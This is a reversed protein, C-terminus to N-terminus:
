DCAPEPVRAPGGNRAGDRDPGVVARDKPHSELVRRVRRGGAPPGPRFGRRTPHPGQASRGAHSCRPPRPLPRLSPLGPQSWPAPRPEGLSNRRCRRGVAGGVTAAAAVAAGGTDRVATASRSGVGGDVGAMSPGGAAEISRQASSRRTESSRHSSALRARARASSAASCSRAAWRVYSLWSDAAAAAAALASGRVIWVALSSACRFKRTAM